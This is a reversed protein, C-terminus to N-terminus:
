KIMSVICFDNHALQEPENESSERIKKFMEDLTRGKLKPKSGAMKVSCAVALLGVVTRKVTM